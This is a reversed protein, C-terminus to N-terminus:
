LCFFCSFFDMSFRRLTEIPEIKDNWPQFKVKRKREFADDYTLVSWFM